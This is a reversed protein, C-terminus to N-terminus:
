GRRLALIAEPLRDLLEGGSVDVIHVGLAAAAEQWFRGRRDDATDAVLDHVADIAANWGRTEAITPDSVGQHHAFELSAVLGSFYPRSVWGCECRAVIGNAEVVLTDDILKHGSM